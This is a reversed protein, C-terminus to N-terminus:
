DNPENVATYSSNEQCQLLKRREEVLSKIGSKHQPWQRVLDEFVIELEKLNHSKSFILEKISQSEDSKEFSIRNNMKLMKLSLEFFLLNIAVLSGTFIYGFLTGENKNAADLICVISIPTWAMSLFLWCVGFKKYACHILIWLAPINIICYLLTIPLYSRLHTQFTHHDVIAFVSLALILYIPGFTYSVIATALWRRRIRADKPSFHFHEKSTM